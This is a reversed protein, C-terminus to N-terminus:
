RADKIIEEYVKIMREAIRDIDYYERVLKKGNEPL